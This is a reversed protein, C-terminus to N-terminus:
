RLRNSRRRAALRPVALLFVGLALLCAFVALAVDRADPGRDPQSALGPVPATTAHVSQGSVGVTPVYPGEGSAAPLPSAAAYAVSAQPSASSASIDTTTDGGANKSGTGNQDPAPSAAGFEYGAAGSANVPAGDATLRSRDLSAATPAFFSIAGVLVIGALGAAMMSGGLAKTRGLRDFIAWGASRRGLRAAQAETLMFDRPRPPTPLAATAAAIAGLDAFVDACEACSAMQDLARSREREDVDGGYLRALLLEDHTAHTTATRKM